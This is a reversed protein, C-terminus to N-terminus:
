QTDGRLLRQYVTATGWVVVWSLASWAFLGIVFRDLRMDWAWSSLDVHMMAGSIYQVGSPAYFVAMSCLLWIVAVCLAAASALKINNMHM